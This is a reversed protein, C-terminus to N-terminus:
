RYTILFVGGAADYGYRSPATFGDIYEIRSINYPAINYLYTKTGVRSGNIYVLADIGGSGTIASIRRTDRTLLTPRLIEILKWVSDAHPASNIEAEEIINRDRIIRQGGAGAACGIFLMLACLTIIGILRKRM